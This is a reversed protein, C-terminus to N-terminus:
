RRIQSGHCIGVPSEQENMGMGVVLRDAVAGRHRLVRGLAGRDREHRAREALEALDEDGLQLMEGSVAVVCGHETAFERATDVAQESGALSEVGKGAGTRGALALVEAANGRVVAPRARMLDAALETRHRLAGVAVPDLVWPTASERAAGTAARLARDREESLTGLNALVAGALAAFDASEEANEVMAPSAGLALLANASFGAAVVNTLCHVLPAQARLAAVDRDIGRARVTM